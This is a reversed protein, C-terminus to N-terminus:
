FHIVVKGRTHGTEVQEHAKAMEEISLDLAIYPKLVGQQLLDAIAKMDAGSSQVLYTTATQRKEEAAKLLAEKTNGLISLLRGGAKLTKLSRVGVDNGVTDFVVDVEHVVEEFPQKTYDIAEDVGLEKIFDLNAASSTGIVYAGLHKAMQVAFHGVGGAAAHILIREGKQLKLQHVLSQWATLAALTSAAAEGHTINAPKIALHAAPVAVYEAYAKGYGPFNVMGFVEDGQKFEGADPGVSVVEGSIDWGLIIPPDKKFQELFAGGKRTKVDVPNISISKNRVLVENSKISPTPLDVLEFKSVDGAEKLIVAKM